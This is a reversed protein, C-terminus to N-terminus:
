QCYPELLEQLGPLPPTFQALVEYKSLPKKSKRAALIERAQRLCLEAIFQTVRQHNQAYRGMNLGRGGAGYHATSWRSGLTELKKISPIASAIRLAYILDHEPSRRTVSEFHRWHEAEMRPLSNMAFVTFQEPKWLYIQGRLKAFLWSLVSFGM